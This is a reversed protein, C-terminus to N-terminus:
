EVPQSTPQDQHAWFRRLAEERFPQLEDDPADALRNGIRVKVSVLADASPRYIVCTVTQGPTLAAIREVIDEMTLRPGLEKGAIKSIFDGEKLGARDAPGDELVRMIAPGAAMKGGGMDRVQHALAVGLFGSGPLTTRALRQLVLKDTGMRIRMRVEPSDTAHYAAVLLDLADAPLQALAKSGAQRTAYRPAGIM